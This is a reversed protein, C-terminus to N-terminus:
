IENVLQDFTKSFISQNKSALKYQEYLQAKQLSIPELSNGDLWFINFSFRSNTNKPDGRMGPRPYDERSM